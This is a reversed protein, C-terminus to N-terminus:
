LETLIIQPEALKFECLAEEESFLIISTCSPTFNPYKLWRSATEIAMENSPSSFPYSWALGSVVTTQMQLTYRNM